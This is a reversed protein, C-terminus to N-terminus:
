IKSYKYEYSETDIVTTSFTKEEKFIIEDNKLRDIILMEDANAGTYTTTIGASELSTKSLIIAEKNKLGLNKNKKTFFWNGREIRGFGNENIIREYTFDKKITFKMSYDYTKSVIGNVLEEANEGDYNIKFDIINPSNYSYTGETLNWGGTIRAKRTRLSIFPDNEGKRCNSFLLLSCALLFIIHYRNM